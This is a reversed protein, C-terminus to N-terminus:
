THIDKDYEEIHLKTAIKNFTKIDSNLVILQPNFLALGYASDSKWINLHGAIWNGM